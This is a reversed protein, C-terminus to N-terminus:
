EDNSNLSKLIQLAEERKGSLMIDAALLSIADGRTLLVRIKKALPSANIRQALKSLPDDESNNTDTTTEPEQVVEQESDVETPQPNQPKPEAPSAKAQEADSKDWMKQLIGQAVSPALKKGDKSIFDTGGVYKYVTGSKAKFEEGIKVAATKNHAEIAKQAAREVSQAASSNLPKKTSADIWSTDKKIYNKGSKSKIKYGTPVEMYKVDSNPIDAPTEQKDSDEPKNETDTSDGSSLNGSKVLESVKNTFKKGFVKGDGVWNDGNWVLTSGNYDISSNVPIESEADMRKIEDLAENSLKDAFREDEVFSGSNTEQWKSKKANYFFDGLSFRHPISTNEPNGAVFNSFKDGEAEMISEAMAPEREAKKYSPLLTPKDVKQLRRANDPESTDTLTPFDQPNAKIFGIYARRLEPVKSEPVVVNGDNDVFEKGNWESRVNSNKMVLVSKIPFIHSGSQSNIIRALRVGEAWLKRQIEPEPARGTTMDIFRQNKPIYKYGRIELGAPISIDEEHPPMIYFGIQNWEKNLTERSVQYTRQEDAIVESIISSEVLIGDELFRNEGLYVYAKGAFEFGEGIMTKANKNHELIQRTAAENMRETKSPDVLKMTDHNFWVGELCVYKSGKGSTYVYGNPVVKSTGFFNLM